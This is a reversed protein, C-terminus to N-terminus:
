PREELLRELLPVSAALRDREEDSLEGLREALWADRRRRIEEVAKRGKPTLQAVVTRRDDASGTRTVLGAEELSGVMRTVSPPQVAEHSALDGLTLPGHHHLTSLVSLQSPTVGPAAHQRLRRSLRLVSLRLRAVLEPDGDTSTAPDATSTAPDATGNRNTTRRETM